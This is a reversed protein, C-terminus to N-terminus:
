VPMPESSGKMSIANSPCWPRQTHCPDFPQSCFMQKKGFLHRTLIVVHDSRSFPLFRKTQDHLGVHFKSHTYSSIHAGCYINKIKNAEYNISLLCDINEILQKCDVYFARVFTHIVEDSNVIIPIFRRFNLVFQLSVDALSMSTFLHNSWINKFSRSRFYNPFLILFGLLFSHDHPM